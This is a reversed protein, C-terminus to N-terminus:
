ADEAIRPERSSDGGSALAAIQASAEARMAQLADSFRVPYPEAVSCRM